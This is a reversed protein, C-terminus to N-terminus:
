SRQLQIKHVKKARFIQWLNQGQILWFLFYHLCAMYIISCFQFLQQQVCYTHVSHKNQSMVSHTYTLQNTFNENNDNICYWTNTVETYCGFTLRFYQWALCPVLILPWEFGLGFKTCGFHWNGPQMVCYYYSNLQQQTYCLVHGYYTISTKAWTYTHIYHM